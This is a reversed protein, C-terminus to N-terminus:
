MRAWRREDMVRGYWWLGEYIYIACSIKRGAYCFLRLGGRMGASGYISLGDAAEEVWCSRELGCGAPKGEKFLL